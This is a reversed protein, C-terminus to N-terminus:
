PRASEPAGAPRRAPANQDGAAGPAGIVRVKAGARLRDTGELVVRDGVKIGELIVLREGSRDGIKVPKVSALGDSEV